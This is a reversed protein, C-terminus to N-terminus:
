SQYLSRLREDLAEKGKIIKLSIKLVLINVELDRFRSLRSLRQADKQTTLLIGVGRKVCKGALRMIEEKRYEHHDQFHQRIVVKAGLQRVCNEFSAPNAIGSLLCVQKGGIVGLTDRAGTALYYIYEPEHIAEVLLAQPNLKRLLGGVTRVRKESVEDCHTLCFVGARRLSSLGERLQGAPLLLRNGFPNKVDVTVIDIDRALRWHQFGDDLIFIKYADGKDLQRALNARNSGTVILAKPELNNKLMSGEDGFSYYDDSGLLNKEGPKKYGRLLIAVNHDAAIFTSALYEVLPTKGSGGLTINGVSIVKAKPRYSRLLKIKYFFKVAALGFAYFCSLVALLPFLLIYVLTLRNQTYFLTLGKM